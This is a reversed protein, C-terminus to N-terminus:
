PMVVRILTSSVALHTLPTLAYRTPSAVIVFTVNKHFANLLTGHTFTDWLCEKPCNKVVIVRKLLKDEEGTCHFVM